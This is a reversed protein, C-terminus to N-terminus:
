NGVGRAQLAQALARAKKICRILLPTGFARLSWGAGRATRADLVDGAITMVSPILRLTLGVAMSLKEVPVGWRELPALGREITEMLRPLPTTLTFLVAAAIAALIIIVMTAATPLDSSWWRFAGLALLLPIPPWLQEWLLRPPIRAWALGLAPLVCALLAHLPTRALITSLAIFAILVLLKLGPNARHIATSGPSYVGLPPHQLRM